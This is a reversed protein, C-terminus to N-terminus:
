KPAALRWGRDPMTLTLLSGDRVTLGNMLWVSVRGDTHRWLLDPWGDDDLDGVGGLQWDMEDVTAFVQGDVLTSGNMFWVSVRGDRQNRWILDLWGDQNFDGCGSIKWDLDAIQGPTLLFGHRRTVGDMEWVALRGDQHQWILDARGDRDLDGVCAIRWDTDAVSGPSLPREEVLQADEMLWAMLGGDSRQWLIDSHGDANFDATGAVKWEPDAIAGPNTVREFGDFPGFSSWAFLRGDDHQFLLGLSSGFWANFWASNTRGAQLIELSQGLVTFQQRRPAAHPNPDIAVVFIGPGVTAHPSLSIWDGQSPDRRVDWSCGPQTQVAVYEIAGRAPAIVHRDFVFQCTGAAQQTVPLVIDAFRATSTRIASLPNPDITLSAHYVSSPTRTENGRIWGAQSSGAWGCKRVITVPVDGGGDAVALTAPFAGIEEWRAATLGIRDVASSFQFLLPAEDGAAAGTRSIEGCGDDVAAGSPVSVTVDAIAGNRFGAAAAISHYITMPGFNRLKGAFTTSPGSPTTEVAAASFVPNLGNKAFYATTSLTSRAVASAQVDSWIKFFGSGGVPLVDVVAHTADLRAIAPCFIQAGAVGIVSGSWGFFTVEVRPFVIATTGINDVQGVIVQRGTSDAFIRLPQRVVLGAPLRGLDPEAHLRALNRPTEFALWEQFSTQAEASGTLTLLLVFVSIPALKM